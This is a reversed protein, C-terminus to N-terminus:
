RKIKIWKETIKPLIGSFLKERWYLDATKQVAAAHNPYPYVMQSLDGIKKGNQKASVVTQMWDGAGKGLAHAGVIKGNKSAIIKVFGDTADDAIFRDVGKLSAKFIQVNGDRDRAEEETLGLHFVEPSIYTVWPFHDYNVKNPLGLVAKQVVAKGEMGAAHTFLYKGNTDGIAFIHPISSQMSDNVKIFGKDDCVVGIEKLNLRDTNPQRGVALLLEDVEITKRVGEQEIEIKKRDEFATVSEVRAETLITMEERLLKTALERIEQDEKSLIFSSREILTVESGLRSFAQALEAGIAGGGIVALKEPLKELNFITQNTLFGSNKLGEIPPISPRSGTAIVIKKGTLVLDNVKVDHASAFVAAGHFVDIGLKEFREDDDHEQIVSIAKQVHNMVSKMDITGNVALGFSSANKRAEYVGNAASILAKSPVCGVHLCDGGLKKEKEILAVRAGLSSAGAAVTLGGAGGGIVIVDYDM